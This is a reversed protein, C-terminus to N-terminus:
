WAELHSRGWYQCGLVYDGNNHSHLLLSFGGVGLSQCIYKEEMYIWTKMHVTYCLKGPYQPLKTTSLNKITSVCRVHGKELMVMHSASICGPSWFEQSQAHIQNQWRGSPPCWILQNLGRWEMNESTFSLMHIVGLNPMQILNLM